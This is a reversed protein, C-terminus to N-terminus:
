RVGWLYPDHEIGEPKKELATQPVAQPAAEPTESPTAPPEEM